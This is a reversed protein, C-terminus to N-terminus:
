RRDLTHFKAAVSRKEALDREIKSVVAKAGAKMNGVINRERLELLQQDIQELLTKEQQSKQAVLQELAPSARTPMHYRRACGNDGYRGEETADCCLWRKARHMMCSAAVTGVAGGGGGSGETKRSSCSRVCAFEYAAPHYSCAYRNNQEESYERKCLRCQVRRTHHDHMISLKTTGFEDKLLKAPAVPEARIRHQQLLLSHKLEFSARVTVRQSWLKVWQQFKERLLRRQSGGFMLKGLEARRLSLHFARRHKRKLRSVEKSKTVREDHLQQLKEELRGVERKSSEAIARRVILETLLLFYRGHLRERLYATKFRQPRGHIVESDMTSNRFHTKKYASSCVDEHKIARELAVTASRLREQCADAHERKLKADAVVHEREASIRELEPRLRELTAALPALKRLWYAAREVANMWAVEASALACFTTVTAIMREQTLKAVFAARQEAALREAERVREQLRGAERAAAANGDMAQQILYRDFQRELAEAQAVALERERIQTAHDDEQKMQAWERHLRHKENKGLKIELRRAAKDSTHNRDDVMKAYKAKMAELEVQRLYERMELEARAMAKREQMYLVMEDMYFQRCRREEALMEKRRMEHRSREEEELRRIEERRAMEIKLVGLKAEEKQWTAELTAHTQKRATWMRDFGLYTHTCVTNWSEDYPVIATSLSRLLERSAYVEEGVTAASLERTAEALLEAFVSAALESALMGDRERMFSDRLAADAGVLAAEVSAMALRKECARTVRVIDLRSPRLYQRRKLSIRATVNLRKAERGAAEFNRKRGALEYQLQLALETAELTRRVIAEEHEQKARWRAIMRASADEVCMLELERKESRKEAANVRRQESEEAAMAVREEERFVEEYAVLKTAAFFFTGSWRLPSLVVCGDEQRFYLTKAFGFATRVVTGPTRLLLHSLLGDTRARRDTAHVLQTNAEVIKAEVVRHQTQLRELVVRMEDSSRILAPVHFEAFEADEEVGEIAHTAIQECWM